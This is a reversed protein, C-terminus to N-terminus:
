FPVSDSDDDKPAPKKTATKGVGAPKDGWIKANGLIPGREGADRREKSISQVVMYDNGFKSDPTEKLIIDLYKAGNKGEFLASKDIKACDIKATIM